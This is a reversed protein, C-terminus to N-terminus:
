RYSAEGTVARGERAVFYPIRKSDGLSGGLGLEGNVGSEDAFRYNVVQCTLQHFIAIVSRRFDRIGRKSDTPALFTVKMGMPPGALGM